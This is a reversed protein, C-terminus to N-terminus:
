FKTFIIKLDVRVPAYAWLTYSKISKEVLLFVESIFINLCHLLLFSPLLDKAKEIDSIIKESWM